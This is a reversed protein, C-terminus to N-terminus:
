IFSEMCKQLTMVEFTSQLNTAFREWGVRLLDMKFRPAISIRAVTEAFSTTRSTLQINAYDFLGSCTRYLATPTGSIPLHAFSRNFIRSTLCTSPWRLNSRLVLKHLLRLHGDRGPPLAAIPGVLGGPGRAVKPYGAM